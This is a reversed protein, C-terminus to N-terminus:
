KTCLNELPALAAISTILGKRAWRGSPLMMHFVVLLKKSRGDEPWCCGRGLRGWLGQLPRVMVWTMTSRGWGRQAGTAEASNFGPLTRRCLARRWLTVQFLSKLAGSHIPAFLCRERYVKLLLANEHFGCLM